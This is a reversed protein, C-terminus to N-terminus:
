RTKGVIQSHNDPWGLRDFDAAPIKVHATIAREFKELLWKRADMILEGALQQPFAM